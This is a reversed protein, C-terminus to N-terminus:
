WFEGGNEDVNIEIDDNIDSKLEFSDPKGKYLATRIFEEVKADVLDYFERKPSKNGYDQYQGIFLVKDLGLENALEKYKTYIPNGYRLELTCGHVHYICSKGSNVASSYTGVCHKMKKGERTLDHNTKLMEYGSFAQFEHFVKASRKDEKYLRILRDINKSDSENLVKWTFPESKDRKTIKSQKKTKVQDKLPHEKKM